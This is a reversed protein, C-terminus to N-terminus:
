SCLKTRYGERSYIESILCSAVMMQISLMRLTVYCLMTECDAGHFWQLFNVKRQSNRHYPKHIKTQGATRQNKLTTSHATEARLMPLSIIISVIHRSSTAWQSAVIVFQLLLLHLQFGDKLRRIALKTCALTNLDYTM